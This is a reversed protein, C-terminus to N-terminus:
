VIPRLLHPGHGLIAHAGADICEHAFTQLFESPSEKATGSLQHSHVSVMIYDAQLQAEYIAKKVRELDTGNVKSVYRRQTGSVFKMSGLEAENEALPPYYGEARTIEKEANINTDKALQKIYDIDEQPLEIYNEIRLGNIGPRGPVRPSQAGAMASPDFSTNVAILAVRGNETELYKPASAQALNRGLGAHVLGSADLADITALLGGYSFDLAHNNNASTMNFGFPKIDDLIEPDTRIYTGGSFQSAYTEGEHNLTTELNFFRADGQKIFDALAGFGAYGPYIPKQIIMDGAATFKM